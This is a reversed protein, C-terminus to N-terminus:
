QTTEAGDPPAAGPAEDSTDSSAGAAAKPPFKVEPSAPAAPAKAEAQSEAQAKYMEPIEAAILPGVVELLRTHRELFEKEGIAGNLYANCLAFTGDRYLQVGQSRRFLQKVTTALTQALGLQAEGAKGPSPAQAVATLAASLNDAADAPPEACFKNDPMKVIVVRREPTTALVGIKLKGWGADTVRDEIVPNAKPQTFTSCGQVVILAVGAILTRVM